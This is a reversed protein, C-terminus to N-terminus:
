ATKGNKKAEQHLSECKSSSRRSIARRIGRKTTTTIRTQELLPRSSNSHSAASPAQSNGINRSTLVLISSTRLRQHTLDKTYTAQVSTYSQTVGM